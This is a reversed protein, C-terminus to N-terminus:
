YYRKRLHDPVEARFEKPLGKPVHDAARGDLLEESMAELKRKNSLAMERELPHISDYDYGKAFTGATVLRRLDKGGCKPCRETDPDVVSISEIAQYRHGCGCEIDLLAM